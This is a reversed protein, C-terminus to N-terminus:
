TPYKINSVLAEFPLQWSYEKRPMAATAAKQQRSGSIDMHPQGCTQKPPLPTAIVAIWSIIEM